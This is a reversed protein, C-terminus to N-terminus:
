TSIGHHHLVYQSSHLRFGLKEYLGISETNAAQTGATITACGAWTPMIQTALFHIMGGALGKRAATPDVAILDIIAKAGARLALLFGSVTGGNEAVVMADGRKGAFFNAVWERKIADAMEKSIRPDLHFRSRRFSSGAIRLIQDRDEHQAVRAKASTSRLAELPAEFQLSVDIVRFGLDQLAASTYTDATGVRATAFLRESQLRRRFDGDDATGDVTVRM